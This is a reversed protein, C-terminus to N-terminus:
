MDGLKIVVKDRAAANEHPISLAPTTETACIDCLQLYAM